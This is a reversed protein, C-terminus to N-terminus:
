EGLSFKHIHDLIGQCFIVYDIVSSGNQKRFKFDNNDHWLFVDNTILMRTNQVNQLFLKRYEYSDKEYIFCRNYMQIDQMASSIHPILSQQADRQLTRTRVKM